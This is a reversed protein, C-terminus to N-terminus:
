AARAQQKWRQANVGMALLWLMPLVEGFLGAMTNYPALRGSLPPSLYILWVAGAMAMFAGLVRPLFASRFILWGILLCYLGHFLMAINVNGPHWRLAELALGALNLFLALFALGRSVPKFIAYLLVTVVAYCAVPVVIAVIVYRGPAFFECFVAVIVALFYFAGAIRAWRRPSTEHLHTVKEQTAM